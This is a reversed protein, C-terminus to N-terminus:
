AKVESKLADLVLVRAVQAITLLHRRTRINREHREARYRGSTPLAPSRSADRVAVDLFALADAAGSEELASLASELSGSDDDRLLDACAEDNDRQNYAAEIEHRLLDAALTLFPTNSM